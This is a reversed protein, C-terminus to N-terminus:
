FVDKLIKGLCLFGQRHNMRDPHPPALALASGETYLILSRSVGEKRDLAEKKCMSVVEGLRLGQGKVSGAGSGWSGEAM